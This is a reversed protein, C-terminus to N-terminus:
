KQLPFWLEESNVNHIGSRLGRGKKNIKRRSCFIRECVVEGGRWM